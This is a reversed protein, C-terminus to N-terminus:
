VEPFLLWFLLPAEDWYFEVKAGLVVAGAFLLSYAVLLVVVGAGEVVLPVLLEM